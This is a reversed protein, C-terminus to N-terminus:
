GVAGGGGQDYFAKRVLRIHSSMVWVTERGDSESFPFLCLTYNEGPITIGVGRHGPQFIIETSGFGRGNALEVLEDLPVELPVLPERAEKTESAWPIADM